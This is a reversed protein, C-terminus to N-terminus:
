PSLREVVWGDGERRYRLRDHLRSPRGQWFEIRVPTLCYGGWDDPTPVDGGEYKAEAEALQQELTERNPVVTSQQSAIAGLQSGRPRGSFYKESQARDVKTLKGEIRVQRELQGWYFCVAANPNAGIENGKQSDYNTYFVFGDADFHKLLVIRASVEGTPTSTALTMANVEFWEGPSSARAEGLWTTFQTFPNAALDSEALGHDQYHRRLDQLNM